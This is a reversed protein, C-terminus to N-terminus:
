IFNYSCSNKVEVTGQHVQKFQGYVPGLLTSPLIQDKLIFGDTNLMVISENHIKNEHLTEYLQLRAFSTLFAGIRAHPRKFIKTKKEYFARGSGPETFSPIYERMNHKCYDFKDEQKVVKAKVNKECFYGHLSTLFGKADQVYEEKVKNRLELFYEVTSRFAISGHRRGKYYMWNVQNDECMVISLKEKKALTLIFHTVWHFKNAHSNPIWKTSGIIKCKYLGYNFFKLENLEKTTLYGEIGQTNPFTFKPHQMYYSYMNNQDYDTCNNFTGATAYHVGGMNAGGASSKNFIQHEIDTLEEPQQLTKSFQRWIEYAITANYQSKYFDIKGNTLTKFYDAKELLADRTIELSEQTEDTSKIFISKDKLEIYKDRPMTKVSAGNYVFVSNDDKYYMSYVDDKSVARFRYFDTSAKGENCQLTVHNGKCKLKIHKQKKNTPFYTVDGVVEISAKLLKQLEDIIDLLHVKDDREYEFHRKFKYAKNIVSPLYEIKFNYAKLIANYVCDNHEDNGVADDLEQEYIKPSNKDTSIIQFRSVYLDEISEQLKKNFEINDAPQMRSIFWRNLRIFRTGTVKKTKQDIINVLKYYEANLAFKLKEYGPLQFVIKKIREEISKLENGDKKWGKVEYTFQFAKYKGFFVGTPSANLCVLKVM